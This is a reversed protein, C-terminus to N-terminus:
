SWRLIFWTQHAESKFTILTSGKMGNVKIINKDLSSIFKHWSYTTSNFYSKTLNKELASGDKLILTSM